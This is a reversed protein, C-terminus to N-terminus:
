RVAKALITLQERRGDRDAVSAIEYIVNRFDVLRMGPQVQSVFHTCIQHTMDGKVQQAQLYQRGTAVLPLVEAWLKFLTKWGQLPQGFDDLKGDQRVQVEVRTTMRGPDIMNVM